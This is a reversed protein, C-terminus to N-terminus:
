ADVHFWIDDPKAIDIICFNEKNNKGILYEINNQFKFINLFYFKM